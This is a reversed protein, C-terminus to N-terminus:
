NKAIKLPYAGRQLPGRRSIDPDAVSIPSHAHTNSEGTKKGSTSSIKILWNSMPFSLIDESLKRKGAQLLKGWDVAVFRVSEEVKGTWLDTKGLCFM